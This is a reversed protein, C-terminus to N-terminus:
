SDLDGDGTAPHDAPSPAEWRVLRRIVEHEGAEVLRYAHRKGGPRLVTAEDAIRFFRGEVEVTVYENWEGKPRTSYVTLAGDKGRELEDPADAAGYAVRRGAGAAFGRVAQGARLAAWVLPEAFPERSVLFSVIRAMGVVPLMLLLWTRPRLLWYLWLVAGGWTFALAEETTPTRRDALAWFGDALGHSMRHLQVMFESHVLDIGVFFGLVGLLFSALAADGGLRRLLRDREPSPALAGLLSGLLWRV